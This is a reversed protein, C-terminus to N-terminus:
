ALTHALSWRRTSSSSPAWPSSSQDRQAISETLTRASLPPLQRSRIRGVSTLPPGFDMEYNVAVTKRDRESDGRGVGVVTLAKLREDTPNRRDPGAASRAAAPRVLEMAVLAVVVRM